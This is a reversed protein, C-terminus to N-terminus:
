RGVISRDVNNQNRKIVPPPNDTRLVDTLAPIAEKAVPGLKELARLADIQLALDRDCKIINLLHQIVEQGIEALADVADDWSRSDPNTLRSVLKEVSSEDSIV